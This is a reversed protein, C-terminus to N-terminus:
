SSRVRRANEDVQQVFDDWLAAPLEHGMGTVLHLRSGSVLDHLELSARHDIVLDDTGAVLVTPATISRATTHLDPCAFMARAQRAHGGQDPDRDYSRGALERLWALDQPYATSRCVEETGLFREVAETRSAPPPLDTVAGEPSARFWRSSATTYVLALSAVLDPRSGALLQAVMGGMSAGVLHVPGLGLDVLTRGLDDAMDALSYDVGPFKPSLGVDRNDLRVVHYGRDVFRQCLPERWKVLQATHGEVLVLPRGGLGGFHQVHLAAGTM